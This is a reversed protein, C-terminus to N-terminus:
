FMTYQFENKKAKWVHVNQGTVRCIRKGADIVVGINRLEYIRPVVCNVSWRLQSAIESNSMGAESDFLCALVQRQKLSLKAQMEKYAAIQTDLM